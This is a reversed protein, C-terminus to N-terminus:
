SWPVSVWRGDLLRKVRFAQSNSVLRQAETKWCPTPEKLAGTTTDRRRIWVYEPAAEHPEGVGRAAGYLSPEIHEAKIQKSVIHPHLCDGVMQDESATVPSNYDLILQCARRSLFYGPGSAATGPTGPSGGYFRGAYDWNKYDYERFREIFISTDCDCKFLSDYDHALMWACIGKTKLSLQPYGDPVDLWIEDLLLDDLQPGGVFFRVDSVDSLANGWRRRITEHHRLARDRQCSLVAILLRTM